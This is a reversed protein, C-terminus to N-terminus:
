LMRHLSSSSSLHSSFLLFVFFIFIKVSRLVREAQKRLEPLDLMDAVALLEQATEVTISAAVSFSPHLCAFLFCSTVFGSYFYEVLLLFVSASCMSITIPVDDNLQKWRQSLLTQFWSSQAWLVARHLHFLTEGVRFSVDSSITLQM